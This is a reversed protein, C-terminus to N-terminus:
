ACIVISSKECARFRKGVEEKKKQHKGFGAIRSVLRVKRRVTRAYEYM